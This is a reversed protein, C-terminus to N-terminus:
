GAAAEPAAVKVKVTKITKGLERQFFPRKADTNAIVDAVTAGPNKGVFKSVAEFRKYAGTGKRRSNEGVETIKMDAGFKAKLVRKKTAGKKKAAKKKARPM